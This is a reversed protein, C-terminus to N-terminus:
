YQGPPCRCVCEYTKFVDQARTGGDHNTGAPLDVNWGATISDGIAEYRLGGSPLPPPDLAVFGHGVNVSQLTTVGYSAENCRGVVVTYEKEPDLGTALTLAGSTEDLATRTLNGGNVRTVFYLPELKTTAEGGSSLILSPSHGGPGSHHTTSRTRSVTITATAFTSNSFRFTFSGGWATRGSAAAAAAPYWRGTLRLKDAPFAVAPSAPPSPAPTPPDIPCWRKGTKRGCEECAAKSTTTNCHNKCHGKHAEDCHTCCIGPGVATHLTQSRSGGDSPFTLPTEDSGGAPGSGISSACPEYRADPWVLFGVSRPSLSAQHGETAATTTSLWTPELAPFEDGHLVLPDGNLRVTRSHLSAATLEYMAVAQSATASLQLRFPLVTSAANIWAVSVSGNTTGATCHAYVRCDPPLETVSHQLQQAGMLQKWLAALFFDPNPALTKSDLLANYCGVLDQRAFEQLGLAAFEGLASMFWFSSLFSNTSGNIGGHNHPGCEGCWVPAPASGQPSYERAWRQMTEAERLSQNLLPPATWNDGGNDNYSHLCIGDILGEVLSQSLFARIFATNGLSPDEDKMGACPGLVVPRASPSPWLKDLLSKLERYAALYNGFRASSPPPSMEEGLEVGFVRIDSGTALLTDRTFTLLEESTRPDWVCDDHCGDIFPLGLVLDLGADSAFSLVQRWRTATMCETQNVGSYKTHKECEALTLNGLGPLYQAYKDLTGGIRLLGPSMARAAHRLRASSLDLDFVNAGKWPADDQWAKDQQWFDLTVSLYQELAVHGRGLLTAAAVTAEAAPAVAERNTAAALLLLLLLQSLQCRMRMHVRHKGGEM